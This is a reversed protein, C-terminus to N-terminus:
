NGEVKRYKLIDGPSGTVTWDKAFKGGCEVDNRILGSRYEVDIRTGKSFPARKRGKNTLWEM